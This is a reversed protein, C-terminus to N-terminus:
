INNLKPNLQKKNKIRFSTIEQSLGVWSITPPFAAATEVISNKGHTQNEHVIKLHVGQAYSGTCVNRSIFNSCFFLTELLHHNFILFPM